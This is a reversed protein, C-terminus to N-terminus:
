FSVLCILKTQTFKYFFYRASNQYEPFFRFCTEFTPEKAQRIKCQFWAGELQGDGFDHTPNEIGMYVRTCLRPKIKETTAAACGFVLMVAARQAGNCVIGCM